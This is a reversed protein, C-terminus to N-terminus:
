AHMIYPPLRYTLIFLGSRRDKMMEKRSAKPHGVYEKELKAM